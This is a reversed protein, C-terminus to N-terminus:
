GRRCTRQPRAKQPASAPNGPGQSRPACSGAWCWRSCSTSAAAAEFPQRHTPSFSGAHSSSTRSIPASGRACGTASVAPNLGTGFAAFPGTSREFASVPMQKGSAGPVFLGTLGEAPSAEPVLGAPRRLPACPQPKAAVRRSWQSSQFNPSFGEHFILLFAPLDRSKIM